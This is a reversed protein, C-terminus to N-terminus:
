FQKGFLYELQAFAIHQKVYAKQLKLQYNLVRQEMRLVEEFEEENTQYNAMLIEVSQQAKNLQQHYHEINRTAVRYNKNAQEFQTVLENEEQEYQQQVAKQQFRAAEIKAKYKGRYLPLKVTLLPLLIADKGPQTGEGMSMNTPAGTLMYQVGLGMMPYGAKRAVEQNFSWHKRKHDIAELRPNQQLASDVLTSLSHSLTVSGLSDAVTVAAGSPKNLLANFAAKVARQRNKLNQLRNRLDELDMDVRLVNVMGSQKGQRATEYNSKSISKYQQLIQLNDRTIRIMEQIEYLQFWHKKVRYVLKNKADQYQDEQVQAQQEAAREKAGLTGWWPFMQNASFRAQQPGVRTEVPQILFGAKLQPDPLTNVQPIKELAAQYQQYDVQLGPNKQVATEVYKDLVPQAQLLHIAVLGVLLLGYRLKSYYEM